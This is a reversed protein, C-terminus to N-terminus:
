ADYETYSVVIKMDDAAADIAGADWIHITWGAALWTVHLPVTQKTGNINTGILNKYPWQDTYSAGKVALSAGYQSATTATIYKSFFVTDTGNTIAINFQRNGVTATATIEGYISEVDWAKGTPVTLTVDSDDTSILFYTKKTGGPITRVQTM